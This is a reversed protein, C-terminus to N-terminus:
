RCDHFPHLRHELVSQGLREHAFCGDFLHEAHRNLAKREDSLDQALDLQTGSLKLVIQVFELQWALLTPDRDTCGNLSRM